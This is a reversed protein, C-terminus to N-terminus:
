KLSRIRATLRDGASRTWMWCSNQKKALRMPGEFRRKASTMRRRSLGTTTLRWVQSLLMVRRWRLRGADCNQSPTNWRRRFRWKTAASSRASAITSWLLSVRLYKTSVKGRRLFRTCTIGIGM